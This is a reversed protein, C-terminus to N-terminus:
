LCLGVQYIFKEGAFDKVFPPLLSFQQYNYVPGTNGSEVGWGWSAGAFTYIFISPEEIKLKQTQTLNSVEKRNCSLPNEKESSTIWLWM